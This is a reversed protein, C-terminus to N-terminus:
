NEVVEIPEQIGTLEAHNRIKELMPASIAVGENLLRLGKVTKVPSHLKLGPRLDAVYYQAIRGAKQESETRQQLEPISRLKQMIEPDYWGVRGSMVGFVSARSMGTSELDVMDNFIKLVRSEYPIMDGAISDGPVGTGDFNKRHYLVIRAVNNLRPINILLDHGIKPIRDFMSEEVKGLEQGSAVKNLITEPMTITGIRSLMAAVEFEWRDRIKGSALFTRVYDRTKEARGFSVANAMALLETLLSVSGSLTNHLLSRESEVLEHQRLADELAKFLDKTAAPKTLFRFVHGENIADLSVRLDAYATYLIRVTDPAQTELWTLFRMGDVHPMKLDSVVVAYPGTTLVAKIGYEVGNATEVEFNSGLQFRLSSLVESDDDVILIRKTM